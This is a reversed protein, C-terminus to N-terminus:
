PVPMGPVPFPFPPFPAPGRTDQAAEPHMKAYRATNGTLVALPHEPPIRGMDLSAAIAISLATELLDTIPGVKSVNELAALMRPRDAAIAVLARATSEGREILVCAVTPAAFGIGAALKAIPDLLKTTLADTRAKGVRPRGDQKATEKDGKAESLLKYLYKPPYGLQRAIDATTADPNEERIREVDAM